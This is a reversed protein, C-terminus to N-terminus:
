LLPENVARTDIQTGAATLCHHWIDLHYCLTHGAGDRIDGSCLGLSVNATYSQVIGIILVQCQLLACESIAPAPAPRPRLTDLRTPLEELGEM